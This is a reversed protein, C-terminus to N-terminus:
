ENEWGPLVVKKNDVFCEYRIDSVKVVLGNASRCDGQWRNFKDQYDTHANWSNIALAIIVFIVFGIAVDIAEVEIYGSSYKRM